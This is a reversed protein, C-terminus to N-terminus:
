LTLSFSPLSSNICNSMYEIVQRHLSHNATMIEWSNSTKDTGSVSFVFKTMDMKFQYTHAFQHSDGVFIREYINEGRRCYQNHYAENLVILLSQQYPNLQEADENTLQLMDLSSFTVPRSEDATERLLAMSQRMKTLLTHREMIVSLRRQLEKNNSYDMAPRNICAMWLEFLYSAFYDGYRSIDGHPMHLSDPFLRRSLQLVNEMSECDADRFYHDYIADVLRQLVADSCDPLAQKWQWCTRVPTVEQNANNNPMDLLAQAGAHFERMRAEVQREVQEDREIDREAVGDRPVFQRNILAPDEITPQRRPVPPPPRPRPRGSAAAPQQQQARLRQLTSLSPMQYPDAPDEIPAPPPDAYAPDVDYHTPPPFNYEYEGTHQEPVPSSDPPPSQEGEEELESSSTQDNIFSRDQDNEEEEEGEEEEEEEGELLQPRNRVPRLQRKRKRQPPQTTSPEDGEAEEEEEEVDRDNSEVATEDFFDSTRFQRPHKM